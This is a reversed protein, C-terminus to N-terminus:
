GRPELVVWWPLLRNVRVPLAQELMALAHDTNDIPYAGIVKLEAIAPDVGLYGQRYRSLEALLAKLTINDAVILGQVWAQQSRSAVQPKQIARSAFTTQEGAALIRRENNTTVIEVEGEYVALLTDEQRQRVMFRTGLARLRGQRTTVVFPRHRSDKATQILIEGSHLVVERLTDRYIVDVASATNLSLQGGDALTFSQVDGTGTRYDAMMRQTATSLPTYHWSLWIAIGTLTGSLLKRRAIRDSRVTNLISGAGKEGAQRQARQFRQGVQEVYQWARRHEPHQNLWARWGSREQETVNEDALTAFWEAAQQLIHHELRPPMNSQTM